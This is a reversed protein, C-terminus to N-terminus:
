SQEREDPPILSPALTCLMVTVTGDAKTFRVEVVHTLLQTLLQERLVVAEELGAEQYINVTKSPLPEKFEFVVGTQEDWLEPRNGVYRQNTLSARLLQDLDQTM